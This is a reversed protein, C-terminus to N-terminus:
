RSRRHHDEDNLDRGEKSSKQGGRPEIKIEDAGLDALLKGCFQAHEGTLELVRLGALPGSLDNGFNNSTM